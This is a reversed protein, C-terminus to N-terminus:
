KVLAGLLFSAILIVLVCFTVMAMPRDKKSMFLVISTAVRLIPTLILLLLGYVIYSLGDNKTLSSRLTTFSHPFSFSPKIYIHYSGGGHNSLYTYLGFLVFLTSVIVGIQLVLSIIFYFHKQKDIQRIM